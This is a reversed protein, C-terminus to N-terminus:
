IKPQNTNNSTRTQTAKQQKAGNKMSQAIGKQIRQIGTMKTGTVDDMIDGRGDNIFMGELIKLAEGLKSLRAEQKAKETRLNGEKHAAPHLDINPDTQKKMYLNDFEKAAKKIQSTLQKINKEANRRQSGKVTDEHSKYKFGGTENDAQSRERTKYDGKDNKTPNWLRGKGIGRKMEQQYQKDQAKEWSGELKAREGKAIPDVGSYYSKLVDPYRKEIAKKIKAKKEHYDNTSTKEESLLEELIEMAEKLPAKKQRVIQLLDELTAKGQIMNNITDLIKQRYQERKNGDYPFLEDEVSVVEVKGDKTKRDRKIKNTSPPVDVAPDGLGEVEFLNSFKNSLEQIEELIDSM